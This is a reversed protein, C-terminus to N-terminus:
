FSNLPFVRSSEGDEYDIKNENLSFFAVLILLLILSSSIESLYLIFIFSILGVLIYLAYSTVVGTSLKTLSKSFNM